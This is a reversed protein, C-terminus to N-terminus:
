RQIQEKWSEALSQTQEVKNDSTLQPALLDLKFQLSRLQNLGDQALGNLRPLSSSPPKQQPEESTAGSKGYEQISNIHGLTLNYTEEYSKEVKEVEEDVQDLQEKQTQM